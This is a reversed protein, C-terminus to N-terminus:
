VSPIGPRINIFSFHIKFNLKRVQEQSSCQDITKSKFFHRIRSQPTTFDEKMLDSLAILMNPREGPATAKHPLQLRIM